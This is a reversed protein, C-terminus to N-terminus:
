HVPLGGGAAAAVVAALADLSWPVGGAPMHTHEVCVLGPPPHHHSAAGIGWTVDAASFTGQDDDVPHIQVGANVAAAGAEYIVIHQRRGAVVLGGRPCLVRLAVQNAMTGSPVYLAAPKGVREAYAEELANVTPDDGYGDDGVEAEAMARRMEPTPRTVTDSRLDVFGSTASSGSASAM